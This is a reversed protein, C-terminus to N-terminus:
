QRAGRAAPILGPKGAVVNLSNPAGRAAPILGGVFHNISDLLDPAGRLPSSGTVGPSQM